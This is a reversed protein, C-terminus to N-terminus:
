VSTPAIGAIDGLWQRLAQESIIGKEQLQLMEAVTPSPKPAPAMPSIEVVMAAATASGMQYGITQSSEGTISTWHVLLSSFMSAKQIAQSQLLAYAQSAAMSIETATRPAGVAGSPILADRRMGQDLLELWARHEALSRAQIEVFQFSAGEPLDIISNPGLVIEANAAGAGLSLPANGVVGTRVGVPMATRYLLEQYDSQCRFHNLYQHALGLHPLDGEGFAAGDSAYWIM